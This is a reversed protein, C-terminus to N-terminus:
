SKLIYLWKDSSIHLKLPKYQEESIFLFLFMIYLLKYSAAFVANLSVNIATFTSALDFLELWYHLMGGKLSIFQMGFM